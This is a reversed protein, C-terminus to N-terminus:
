CGCGYGDFFRVFSEEAPDIVFVDFEVVEAELLAACGPICNGDLGNGIRKLYKGGRMRADACEYFGSYCIIFGSLKGTRTQQAMPRCRVPVTM